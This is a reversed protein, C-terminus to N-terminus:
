LRDESVTQLLLISTLIMGLLLVALPFVLLMRQKRIKSM